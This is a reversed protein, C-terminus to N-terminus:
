GWARHASIQRGYDPERALTTRRYSFFADAEACTDHGAVDIAPSARARGSAHEVIAPSTSCSIDPASARARLLTCQGRDREIFPERFNRARGRLIAARDGPRDGAHIRERAAGLQDMAAVTAELVGGLAGKWGAHAAGIM